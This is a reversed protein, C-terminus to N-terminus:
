DNGATEFKFRGPSLLNDPDLQHKIRQMVSEASGMMGWAGALHKLQAPAHEIVLSGGLRIATARLKDIQAATKAFFTERENDSPQLTQVVRVRGEGSGATWTVNPIQDLETLFTELDSTRVSARWVLNEKSALPWSALSDWTANDNVEHRASLKASQQM